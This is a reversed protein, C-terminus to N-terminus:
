KLLQWLSVPWVLSLLLLILVVTKREGLMDALLRFDKGAYRTVGEYDAILVGTCFTLFLLAVGFYGLTIALIM